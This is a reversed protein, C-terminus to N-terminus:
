YSGFDVYRPQYLRLSCSLGPDWRITSISCSRKTTSLKQELKELLEDAIAEPNAALGRARGSVRGRHEEEHVDGLVARRSGNSQQDAHAPTWGYEHAADRGSASRM